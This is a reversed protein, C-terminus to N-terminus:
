CSPDFIIEFRDSPMLRRLIQLYGEADSRNYCSAVISRQMGPLWRVVLWRNLRDRYPMIFKDGNIPIQRSLLADLGTSFPQDGPLM